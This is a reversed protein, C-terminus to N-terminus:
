EKIKSLRNQYYADRLAIYPDLAAKKLSEYDGIRFSTDNIVDFAEAGASQWWDLYNLPDLFRDGVTGITDRLTSPGLFPWNIYFAPGAGLVALTQGLDEEHRKLDVAAAIDALGGLGVVSNLLFGGTEELAGIFTGQFVNNLFRVPFALNNFFNRTCMRVEEPVVTKYGKAVPKLVWFYLKDNFEFFARNVPELPDPVTEGQAEVAEADEEEANAEKLSAVQITTLETRQEDLGNELAHTATSQGSSNVELALLFLVAIAFVLGTRNMLTDM